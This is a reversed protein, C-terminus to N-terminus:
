RKRHKSTNYGGAHSANTRFREEDIEDQRSQARKSIQETLTEKKNQLQLKETEARLKALPDDKKENLGTADRLVKELYQRGVNKAAPAIVDRGLSTMFRKGANAKEPDINKVSQRAQKAARELNMRNIYENLEETTMQSPKKKMLKKTRKRERHDSYAKKAASAAKRGTNAAAEAVKSGVSRKKRTGSTRRKGFINQGWKMGKRGYHYLEDPYEKTYM